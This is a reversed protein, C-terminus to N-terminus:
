IFTKEIKKEKHIIYLIKISGSYTSGRYSLENTTVDLIELLNPHKKIINYDEFSLKNKVFLIINNENLGKVDKIAVIILRTNKTGQYFM